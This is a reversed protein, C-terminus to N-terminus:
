MIETRIFLCDAALDGGESQTHTQSIIFVWIADLQNMVGRRKEADSESRNRRRKEREKYERELVGLTMNVRTSKYGSRGVALM